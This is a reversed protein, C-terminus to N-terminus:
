KRSITYSQIIEQPRYSEKAHKINEMGFDGMVNIYTYPELAKDECFRSFIYAALGRISLDTIEFLVCFTTENLKYGFTYARIKDDIKVVRGTIGVHGGEDFILQHVDRNEALLYNYLADDSKEQKQSKWEDYLALCEEKMDKEYPHYSFINHTVFYNYDARKAKYMNGRLTIIDKKNYIYENEKIIAKFDSEKFMGLQSSEVNEIRSVSKDENCSDMYNFCVNIVNETPEKEALPPLYMFCGMEHHAFICLFGNIVKFEFNFFKHWSFLYNFAYGSQQHQSHQLAQEVDLRKNILDFKDNSKLDITLLEALENEYEKYDGALHRNRNIFEQVEFSDFFAKVEEIYKDCAESGYYEQIFPCSLHLSVVIRDEKAVLMVPYISCEVPRNSYVQCENTQECLQSCCHHAPKGDLMVEQSTVTSLYGKEDVSTSIKKAVLNNKWSAEDIEEPSVKPRWVSNEESFRCCGRCSMCVKQPVFQPFSQFINM